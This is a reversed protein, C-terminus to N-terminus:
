INWLCLDSVPDVASILSAFLFIQITTLSTTSVLNYQVVALLLFGILIFNLITGVVAYLLITRINGFFNNNYLSWSAELIIPPLLYLFFMDSTFKPLVKDLLYFNLPNFNDTKLSRTLM